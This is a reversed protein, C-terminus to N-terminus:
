GEMVGSCGGMGAGKGGGQGVAKEETGCGSYGEHSGGDEITNKAKCRWEKGHVWVRVWLRKRSGAGM